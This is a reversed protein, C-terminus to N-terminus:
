PKELGLLLRTYTASQESDSKCASSARITCTSLPHPHNLVVSPLMGVDINVPVNTLCVRDQAEEAGKEQPLAYSGWPIMGVIAAALQIGLSIQQM